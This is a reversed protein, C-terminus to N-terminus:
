TSMRHRVTYGLYSQGGPRGGSPSGVHERQGQRGHHLTGPQPADPRTTSQYVVTYVDEPACRPGGMKSLKSASSTGTMNSFAPLVSTTTLSSRSSTLPAWNGWEVSKSLSWHDDQFGKIKCLACPHSPRHNVINTWDSLNTCVIYCWIQSSLARFTLFPVLCIENLWIKLRM